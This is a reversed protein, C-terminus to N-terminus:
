VLLLQVNKRYSQSTPIVKGNNLRILYDGKYVRVMSVIHQRNVVYSRHIRLFDSNGLSDLFTSLTSRKRYTKEKHYIKVYNDDAEIHTIDRIAINYVTGNDKLSMYLDDKKEDTKLFKLTRSIAKSFREKSIPKLLYDFAEYEFAKVAYDAHATIFIVLLNEKKIHELVEFGDLQPMRIDLFLVHPKLKEIEAIAARGDSCTAVVEFDRIPQLLQYIRERVLPEDDAIIAKYKM